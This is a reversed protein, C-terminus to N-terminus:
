EPPLVSFEIPPLEEGLVPLFADVYNASALEGLFGVGTRRVPPPISKLLILKTAGLVIALRGAISDRTVSWNAPLRRGAFRPEVREVFDCPGLLTRGPEPLRAELEVFTKVLCLQPLMAGVLGAAIDMIAVCLWHAREDGLPSHADLQRIGEVWPGGGAVLVFHTGPNAASKEDLWAQFRRPFDATQLLSGGIKVVSVQPNTM